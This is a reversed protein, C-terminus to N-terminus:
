NHVATLEKTPKQHYLQEQAMEAGTVGHRYIGTLLRM